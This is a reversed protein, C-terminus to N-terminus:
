DLDEMELFVVQLTEAQPEQVVVAVQLLILIKVTEVLMEKVLLLLVV